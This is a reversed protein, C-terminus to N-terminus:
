CCASSLSCVKQSQGRSPWSNGSNSQIHVAKSGTAKSLSHGQQRIPISGNCNIIEGNENNVPHQAEIQCHYLHGDPSIARNNNQKRQRRRKDKSRILIIAIVLIIVIVACSVTMAVVITLNSGTLLSKDESSTDGGYPVSSDVIILMYQRAEHLGDSVQINYEFESVDDIHQLSTVANVDGTTPNVRFAVDDRVTLSTLTYRLKANVGEDLDYAAVTLFTEGVPMDNSITITHNNTTPYTIIPINNNVDLISVTVSATGSLVPSVDGTNLAIVTLYYVPREERRLTQTTSITGTDADITFLNMAGSIESDLSYTIDSFQISDGDAASVQGVEAGGDQEERVRFTYSLQLFTPAEDNTDKISLTVVATSTQVPVGRDLSYVVFTIGPLREYDFVTNATIIGSQPNLLFYESVEASLQYTVEGNIDEDLDVATVQLILDGINNNESIEATYEDSTFLPANDNKDTVTILIDRTTSLVEPEGSDRCTVTLNYSPIAERDLVNKTVVQYRTRQLSELQFVSTDSLTCSFEQLGDADRDRVSVYAVFTGHVSDEEILARGSPTLTDISIEPANDNVDTIRINMTAYATNPSTGGDVAEVILTYLSQREYDLTMMVSVVGTLSNISFVDTPNIDEQVASEAIFYEVHGNDGDDEDTAVITLVSGQVSIDEPITATYTDTNGEFVPVHDNVDNVVIDLALTGSKRPSGGDTAIVVLRFMSISERDLEHMLELKVSGPTGSMDRVRLEFYESPTVLEYRALGNRGSDLDVAPLLNLTSGVRSGETIDLPLRPLSFEPHNDNIDIIEVSVKLVEPRPPSVAVDFEVLCREGNLLRPCLVDHDVRSGTYLMGTNEDLTFLTMEDGPATLFSYRLQRLISTEYRTLLGSDEVLNGIFEGSRGEETVSYRLTSSVVLTM